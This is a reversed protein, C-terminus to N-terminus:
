EPFDEPRSPTPGFNPHPQPWVALPVSLSSMSFVKPANSGFKSGFETARPSVFRSPSCKYVASISSIRHTGLRRSKDLCDLRHRRQTTINLSTWFRTIHTLSYV